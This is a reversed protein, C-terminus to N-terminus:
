AAETARVRAGPRKHRQCRRNPSFNKSEAPTRFELPERAGCWSRPELAMVARAPNGLLQGGQLTLLQVGAVESIAGMPTTVHKPANPPTELGQFIGHFYRM